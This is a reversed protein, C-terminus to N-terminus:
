DLLYARCVKVFISQVIPPCLHIRLVVSAGGRGEILRFSLDMSKGALDSRYKTPM